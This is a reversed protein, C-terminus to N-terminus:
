FMCHHERCKETCLLDVLLLLVVDPPQSDAVSQISEERLVTLVVAFLPDLIYVSGTCVPMSFVCVFLM